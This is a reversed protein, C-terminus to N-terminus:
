EGWVGLYLCYNKNITVYQASVFDRYSQPDNLDSSQAVSEAELFTARFYQITPYHSDLAPGSFDGSVKISVALGSGHLVHSVTIQGKGSQLLLSTIFYLFTM